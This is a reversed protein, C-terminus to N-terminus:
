RISIKRRILASLDLVQSDSPSKAFSVRMTITESACDCWEKLELASRSIRLWWAMGLFMGFALLCRTLTQTASPPSTVELVALAALQPLTVAYLVGWRPRSSAQRHGTAKDCM